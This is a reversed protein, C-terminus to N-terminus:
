GPLLGKGSGRRVMMQHDSRVQSGKGDASMRLHSGNEATILLPDMEDSDLRQTIDVISWQRTLWNLAYDELQFALDTAHTEADEITEVRWIPQYEWGWRGKNMPPANGPCLVGRIPM